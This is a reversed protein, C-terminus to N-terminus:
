FRLTYQAGFLLDSGGDATVIATYQGPPLAGFDFRQRASNGPYLLGRQQELKRIPRGSSDFLEVSMLLRTARTGTNAFDYFLQRQGGSSSARVSDFAIRVTGSEGIHTAIQVGLRMVTKIGVRARAAAEGTRASDVGEIMIMSWYTGEISPGTPVRVAFTIAANGGPPVVIESPGFTVWSANSRPASGAAPYGIRGDASAYQDTQYVRARQPVASSNTVEIRGEYQEGTRAQREHIAGSTLILQAEAHPVFVLSSALAAFSLLSSLQVTPAFSAPFSPELVRM